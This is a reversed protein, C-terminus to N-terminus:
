VVGLSKNFPLVIVQVSGEIQGGVTRNLPNRQRAPTVLYYTSPAKERVLTGLDIVPDLVEM